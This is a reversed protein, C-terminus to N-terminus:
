KNKIVTTSNIGKLNKNNTEYKKFTKSYIWLINYLILIESSENIKYNNKLLHPNKNILEVYLQDEKSFLNSM